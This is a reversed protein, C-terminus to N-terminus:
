RDCALPRPPPPPHHCHILDHAREEDREREAAQLKGTMDEKETQLSHVRDTLAKITDQDERLQREVTNLHSWLTSNPDVNLSSQFSNKLEALEM